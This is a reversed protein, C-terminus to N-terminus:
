GIERAGMKGPGPAFQGGGREVARRTLGKVWRDESYVIADDHSNTDYLRVRLRLM